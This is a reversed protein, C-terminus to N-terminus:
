ASKSLYETKKEKYQPLCDEQYIILSPVSFCFISKTTFANPCFYVTSIAGSVLGCDKKALTHTYLLSNCCMLRLRQCGKLLTSEELQIDSEVLWFLSTHGLQGIPSLFQKHKQFCIYFVLIQNCAKLSTFFMSYIVCILLCLPLLVHLSLILASLVTCHFTISNISPFLISLKFSSIM